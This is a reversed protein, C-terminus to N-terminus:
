LMRASLQPDHAYMQVSIGAETPRPRSRAARTPLQPPSVIFTPKQINTTLEPTHRIRAANKPPPLAPRMPAIRSITSPTNRNIRDIRRYGTVRETIGARASGVRVDHSGDSTLRYAASCTAIAAKARAVSVVLGYIHTAPLTGGYM